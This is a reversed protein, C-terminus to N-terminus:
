QADDEDDDVDGLERGGLGEGTNLFLGGAEEEDSDSLVAEKEDTTERGADAPDGAEGDEPVAEAGQVAVGSMDELVDERREGAAVDAADREGDAPEAVETPVVADATVVDEDSAVEPLLAEALREPVSDAVDGTDVVPDEGADAFGAAETAVDAVTVTDGDAAGAAETADGRAMAGEGADSSEAGETAADAIVEDAALEEGAFGADEAVSADSRLQEPLEEAAETVADAFVEGAVSEEGAFGADIAAGELSEVDERPEETARVAVSRAVAEASSDEEAASVREGEASGSADELVDLDAGALARGDSDEEAFDAPLAELDMEGRPSEEDAAGSPEGSESAAAQDDALPMDGFVDEARVSAAPEDGARWGTGLGGQALAEGAVGADAGASEDSESKEQPEEAAGVAVGRAIEEFFGEDEASLREDNATVSTDEPVDLGGGEEPEGFSARGDGEDEAVDVTLVGLDDEGRPSEEDEASSLEGSESALEAILGSETAAATDDGFPMDGLVDEAEVSGAPEDDAGSLGELGEAVGTDPLAESVDEIAVTEDTAALMDELVDEAELSDGPMEGGAGAVLGDEPGASLDEGSADAGPMDELADEAATSMDGLVDEVGGPEGSSSMDGPVDEGVATAGPELLEEGARQEEAEDAGRGWRSVHERPPEASSGEVIVFREDATAEIAEDRDELVPRRGESRSRRPAPRPEDDYESAADNAAVDESEDAYGVVPEEPEQVSALAEALLAAEEVADLEAEAAARSAGTERPKAPAGEEEGAKPKPAGFSEDEDYDALAAQTQEASARRYIRITTSDLPQQVGAVGLKVMELISMLTVVVMARLERESGWTRNLFLEEFEFHPKEELILALQKIRQAVTVAEIQVEHTSKVKARTLVRYYAEALNFLSVPALGPDVPPMVLEAGRAFVDRGSMPLSDLEAAAQKFREYEVLRRILAERPDEGEDEESQGAEGARPEPPLLERSKLYALTAAMVLYDGAIELDLQRMVDLYALYKEAVFAIPIDLIDLEHKRVLHLLLDLPGEFVELEVSYVPSSPGKRERTRPAGEGLGTSGQEM